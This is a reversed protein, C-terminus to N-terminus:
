GDAGEFADNPNKLMSNKIKRMKYESLGIMFISFLMAVFCFLLVYLLEM